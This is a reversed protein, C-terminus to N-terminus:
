SEDAGSDVSKTASERGLMKMKDIIPKSWAGQRIKQKDTHSLKKWARMFEEKTGKASDWDKRKWGIIISDFVEAGELESEMWDGKESAPPPIEVKATAPVPKVPSGLPSVPAKPSAKSSPIAPLAASIAHVPTISPTSAQPKLRKTKSLKIMAHLLQAHIQQQLKGYTSDVKNKLQKLYSNEMLSIKQTVNKDLTAIRTNELVSFGGDVKKDMVVLQNLLARYAKNQEQIGREVRQLVATQDGVIESVVKVIHGLYRKDPKVNEM